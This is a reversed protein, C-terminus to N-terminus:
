IFLSIAGNPFIAIFNRTFLAFVNGVYTDVLTMEVAVLLQLASSQIGCHPEDVLVMAPMDSESTTAFIM